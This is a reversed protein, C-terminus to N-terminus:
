DTGGGIWMGFMVYECYVFYFIYFVLRCNNHFRNGKDSEAAQLM